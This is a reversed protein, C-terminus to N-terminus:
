KATGTSEYWELIASFSFLKRVKIGTAFIELGCHENEARAFAFM